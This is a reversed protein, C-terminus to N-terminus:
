SRRATVLWAAATVWVGDATQRSAYQGAISALIRDILADDALETILNRVVPMGRVYTMVDAVNTGIWAPETLPRVQVNTWGARQLIATIKRPEGFVTSADSEPLAVHEGFAELPIAFLENHLDHQWCLFALRGGPRMAAGISAFAAVPDDFFMVGFSSIMVDCSDRRLPGTQADGRVFGVNAANARGASQIAVKLMVQSLDLGVASGAGGAAALGASITTAGCGCGVDLVREGPAIAAAAFLHPM